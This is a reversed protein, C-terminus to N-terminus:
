ENVMSVIQDVLQQYEKRTVQYKTYRERVASGVITKAFEDSYKGLESRLDAISKNLTSREEATEAVTLMLLNYRIRQFRDTIDQLTAIPITMKEYLMIDDDNIEGIDRIGIYGIFGALLAVLVFGTMLKPMIKMNNFWQM